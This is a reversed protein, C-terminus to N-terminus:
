TTGNIIQDRGRDILFATKEYDTAIHEITLPTVIPCPNEKGISHALEASGADLDKDGKSVMVRLIAERGPQVQFSSVDVEKWM